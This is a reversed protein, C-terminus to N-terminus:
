QASIGWNTYTFALFTEFEIMKNSGPLHIVHSSNSFVFSAMRDDSKWPKPPIRLFATKLQSSTRSAAVLLIGQM